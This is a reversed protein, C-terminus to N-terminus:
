GGVAAQKTEDKGFHEDTDAKDAIDQLTYGANDREVYHEAIAGDIDGTERDAGVLKALTNQRFETDALLEVELGEEDLAVWALDDFNIINTNLLPEALEAGVRTSYFTNREALVALVANGAWEPRNFQETAVRGSPFLELTGPEGEKHVIYAVRKGETELGLGLGEAALAVAGLGTTALLAALSHYNRIM